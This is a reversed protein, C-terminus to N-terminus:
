CLKEKKDRQEKTEVAAADGMYCSSQQMQLLLLM